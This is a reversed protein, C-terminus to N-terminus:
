HTKVTSTFTNTIKKIERRHFRCRSIFKFYSFFYRKSKDIYWNTKQIKFEGFYWDSLNGLFILELM